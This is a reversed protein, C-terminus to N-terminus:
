KLRLIKKRRDKDWPIAEVRDGLTRVLASFTAKQLDMKRRAESELMKGHPRSALLAVLIEGRDKQRPQPPTVLERRLEAIQRGFHDEMEEIRDELKEIQRAQLKIFCELQRERGSVIDGQLSVDGNAAPFDGRPEELPPKELM